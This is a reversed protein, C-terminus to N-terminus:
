WQEGKAIGEPSPAHGNQNEEGTMGRPIFPKKNILNQTEETTKRKLTESYKGTCIGFSLNNKVSTKEVM